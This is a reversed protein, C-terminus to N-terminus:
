QGSLVESFLEAWRSAITEIRFQQSKERAKVGMKKRLEENEILFCIKEALMPVNGSEALLGDAGDNIIDKPGCPCAFAVPPLGCSMAETIVMGFGEFRSSFAMVSSDAFKDNLNNVSDMFSCTGSIGLASAQKELASKDGQGYITLHWDSHRESVIAWADLLMDFGKQRVIRGAAIVERNTCDSVREPFNPLPNYIVSVNDLEHWNAKDEESLVVFRDLRKLQKLLQYMWWWALIQMFFRKGTGSNMGFDRYNIKNFHLEGIKRSGDKIKTIFNIDRRLMSVTIDPRIESLVRTMRKRFIYQKYIYAPLKKLFNYRYIYDYNIDLNIVKVKDSLPFARGKDKGETTIIVIEYNLVDAFYNVKVTLTREMGGPSYLGPICYAIKM